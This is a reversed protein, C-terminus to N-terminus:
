SALHGGSAADRGDDDHCSELADLLQQIEIPKQLARRLTGIKPCERARDVASVVIVPVDQLREDESKVVLFRFGDVVPMDLDLVIAYPHLSGDRLMELAEAGDRAAAPAFGYLRLLDVFLERNDPDDEVVLVKRQEPMATVSVM